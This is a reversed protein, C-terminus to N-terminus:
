KKRLEANLEQALVVPFRVSAIRKLSAGVQREVFARGLGPIVLVSIPERTRGLRWFVHPAKTRTSRNIFARRLESPQVPDGTVTQIAWPLRGLNVKGRRSVGRLGVRVGTANVSKSIPWNRFYDFTKGSFVLIATQRSKTARRLTINKKIRGIKLGSYIAKMQRAADARVSVMTKNLARATAADASRKTSVAFETVGRRFADTRVDFRINTM